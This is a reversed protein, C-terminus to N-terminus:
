LGLFFSAPNYRGGWSNNEASEAYEAIEAVSAITPSEWETADFRLQRTARPAHHMTCGLFSLVRTAVGEARANYIGCKGCIGCQPCSPCSPCTRRLRGYRLTLAAELRMTRGAREGAAVSSTISTARAHGGERCGRWVRASVVCVQCACQVSMWGPERTSTSALSSLRTSGACPARRM